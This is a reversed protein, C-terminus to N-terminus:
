VYFIDYIVPQTKQIERIVEEIKPQGSLIELLYRNQNVWIRLKIKQLNRYSINRSKDSELKQIHYDKVYPLDKITKSVLSIGFYDYDM